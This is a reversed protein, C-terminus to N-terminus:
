ELYEKLPRSRSPHRLRQLAQREIQRRRERTLRLKQGIEALTLSQDDQLGYRLSIVKAERASLTALVQELEERLFQSSVRELPPPTEEDKIFDGFERDDDAGVPM